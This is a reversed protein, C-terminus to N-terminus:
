CCGGSLRMEDSCCDWGTEQKGDSCTGTQGRNQKREKTDKGGEYCTKLRGNQKRKKTDENRGEYYRKSGQRAEEVRGIDTTRKRKGQGKTGRTNSKGGLTTRRKSIDLQM